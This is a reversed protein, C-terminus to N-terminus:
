GTNRSGSAIGRLSFLLAKSADVTQDRRFRRLSEVECLTLVQMAPQRSAILRRLTSYKGLLTEHQTILLICQVARAHEERLKEGVPNLQKQETDTLLQTEFDQSLLTDAKLLAMEVMDLSSSLLGGANYQERLEQLYGNDIAKKLSTGVGLWAPVLLRSQTFAASWRVNEIHALDTEDNFPAAYSSRSLSLESAPTCRVFYQMFPYELFDNYASLAENFLLKLLEPNHNSQEPSKEALSARIIASTYLECQRASLGSSGYKSSVQM